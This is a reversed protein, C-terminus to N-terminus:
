DDADDTEAPLPRRTEGEPRAPIVTSPGDPTSRGDDPPDATM